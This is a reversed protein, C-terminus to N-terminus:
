QSYELVGHYYTLTRDTCGEVKKSVFFMQVAKTKTDSHIPALDTSKRGFTYDNLVIYLAQKIADLQEGDFGNLRSMVRRVIENM